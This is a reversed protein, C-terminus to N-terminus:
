LQATKPNSRVEKQLKHQLAPMNGNIATTVQRKKHLGALYICHEVHTDLM